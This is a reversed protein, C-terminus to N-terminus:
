RSMLDSYSFKPDVDTVYVTQGEYGIVEGNYSRAYKAIGLEGRLFDRGETTVRWYGSSKRDGDRNEEEVVLLFNGLLGINGGTAAQSGKLVETGHVFKETGGAEYLLRLAEVHTKNLARKYIKAFQGCCPCHAGKELSEILDARAEELSQSELEETLPIDM